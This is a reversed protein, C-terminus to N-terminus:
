PDRRIASARQAVHDDKRNVVAGGGDADKMDADDKDIKRQAAFVIDHPLVRAAAASSARMMELMRRATPGAGSMVAESLVAIARTYWRAQDLPKMPAPGIKDLLEQSLAGAKRGAGKRRGGHGNKTRAGRPM